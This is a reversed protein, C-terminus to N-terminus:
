FLFSILKIIGFIFGILFIIMILGFWSFIVNKIYNIKFEIAEYTCLEACCYCSICKNKEWKPIKLKQNNTPSTLANVPCNSWCTGCLKCKSSDIKVAAKFVKKSMLKSIWRPFPGSIPSVRPKKFVRKVNELSEGVIEIKKLNTEGLGKQEAFKLYLIDEKNLGILECVVSDLAVGDYGALILDMKVVDGASPGNGEQCLYGDVITLAPKSVSYIDALAACFEKLTPFTAHIKPKNALIVTGFMNKICCTLICQGHTKIKPLNIILDVQKILESSPLENLVIPNEISYVKIKMKEFPICEVNEERCVELIGSGKMCKETYGIKQGGSSEAVIIKNPEFQKLWKIVAKLVKPHTTVAREPPKDNLINPKILINMNKKSMLKKAEILDLAKFVASEVDDNIIKQIAIKNNEM